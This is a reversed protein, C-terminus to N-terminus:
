MKGIIKMALEWLQQKSLFLPGLIVVTIVFYMCYNKFKDVRSTVKELPAFVKEETKSMFAEVKTMTESNKAVTVKMEDNFKTQDVRFQELVAIQAKQEALGATFQRVAETALHQKSPCHKKDNEDTM